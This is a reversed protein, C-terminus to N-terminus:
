DQTSPSLALDSLVVPTPDPSPGSPELSSVCHEDGVVSTSSSFLIEGRADLNTPMNSQLRPTLIWDHEDRAADLVATNGFARLDGCTAEATHPAQPARTIDLSLTAAGPCSPQTITLRAAPSEGIPFWFGESYLRIPDDPTNEDKAFESTRLLIQSEADVCAFAIPIDDLYSLRDGNALDVRAIVALAGEDRIAADFVPDEFVSAIDVDFVVTGTSVGEAGLAAFFESLTCAGLSTSLLGAITARAFHGAVARRRQVSDRRTTTGTM